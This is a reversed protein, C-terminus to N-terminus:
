WPNCLGTLWCMEPEPQPDEARVAIASFAALFTLMLVAKKIIKM